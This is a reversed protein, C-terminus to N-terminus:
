EEEVILDNYIGEYGCKKCKVVEDIVPIFNINMIKKKAVKISDNVNRWIEQCIIVDESRCKPCKLM